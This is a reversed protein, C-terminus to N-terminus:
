VGEHLGGRTAVWLGGVGGAGYADDVGEGVGCGHAGGGGEGPQESTSASLVCQWASWMVPVPARLLYKGCIREAIALLEPASASMYRVGFSVM